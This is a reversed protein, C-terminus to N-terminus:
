PPFPYPETTPQELQIPEKVTIERNDIEADVKIIDPDSRMANQGLANGGCQQKDEQLCLVVKKSPISPDESQMLLALTKTNSPNIQVRTLTFRGDPDVLAPEPPIVIPSFKTLLAENSLSKGSMRGKITYEPHHLISTFADIVKGAGQSDLIAAFAAILGVLGGGGLWVSVTKWRDSVPLKRVTIKARLREPRSSLPEKWRILALSSDVDFYDDPIRSRGNYLGYVSASPLRLADCYWGEEGNGWDDDTLSIVFSLADNSPEEVAADM